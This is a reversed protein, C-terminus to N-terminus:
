SAKALRRAEREAAVRAVEEAPFIWVRGAVKTGHLRGQRRHWHVTMPSIGLQDGAAKADLVNDLSLM